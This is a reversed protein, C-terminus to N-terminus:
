KHAQVQLRVMKINTRGDSDLPYKMLFANVIDNILEMKLNQPVRNLFPHWTTRIWGALSNVNDHTMIRPILEVNDIHFYTKNLFSSYELDSYFYFPNEFDNFYQNWKGGKLTNTIISIMEELNGKGGMQLLIKGGKKLSKFSENLVCEQDKIWHLAANSYVVDFEEKFGLNCADKLEFSLNEFKDNTYKHRAFRIMDKSSDIGVVKGSKLKKSILETIKGDGCGIDLLRETGNLSLVDLLEKGWKYQASSHEAYDEPNWIFINEM